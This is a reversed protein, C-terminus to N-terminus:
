RGQRDRAPWEPNGVIRHLDEDADRMSLRWRIFWDGHHALDRVDDLVTWGGEMAIYVPVFGGFEARAGAACLVLGHRTLGICGVVSDWRRAEGEDKDITLVLGSAAGLDVVREMRLHALETATARGQPDNLLVLRTNGQDATIGVLWERSREVVVVRGGMVEASPITRIGSLSLPPLTM